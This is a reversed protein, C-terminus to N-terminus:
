NANMFDVKNKGLLPQKMTFLLYIFFLAVIVNIDSEYVNPFCQGQLDCADLAIAFFYKEIICLRMRNAKIRVKINM